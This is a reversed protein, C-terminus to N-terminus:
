RTDLGTIAVSLATIQWATDQDNTSKFGVEFFRAKPNHWFAEGYTIIRSSRDLVMEDPKDRTEDSTKRQRYTLTVYNECNAGAHVLLGDLSNTYAMRETGIYGRWEAAYHVRTGTLNDDGVLSPYQLIRGADTGVLMTPEAIAYSLETMCTIDETAAMGAIEFVTLAGIPEGDTGISGATRDWVLINQAYTEDEGVVAAWVQEQFAFTAMRTKTQSAVPITKLTTVFRNHSLDIMGRANLITWSRYGIAHVGDDASTAAQHVVCGRGRKRMFPRLRGDSRDELLVWTDSGTYVVFVGGGFCMETPEGVMGTNIWSQWPDPDVIVQLNVSTWVTLDPIASPYGNISFSIVGDAAGAYIAREGNFAVIPAAPPRGWRTSMLYKRDLVSDAATAVAAAPAYQKERYAKFSQIEVGDGKALYETDGKTSYIVIQDIEYDSDANISSVSIANNGDLECTVLSSPLGTIGEEGTVSNRYAAFLHYRGGKAGGTTASTTPRAGAPMGAKKAGLTPEWKTGGGSDSYFLRNAWMYFSGAETTSHGPTDGTAWKDDIRTFDSGTVNRQWLFGDDMKCIVYTSGDAFKAQTMNLIGGGSGDVDDEWQDFGARKRLVGDQLVVNTAVSATGSPLQEAPLDTNLGNFDIRRRTAM